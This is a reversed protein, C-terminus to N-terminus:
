MTATRAFRTAFFRMRVPQAQTTQPWIFYPHPEKPIVAKLAKFAAQSISPRAATGMMGIAASM